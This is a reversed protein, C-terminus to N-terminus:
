QLAKVASLQDGFLLYLTCFGLGTNGRFSHNPNHSKVM